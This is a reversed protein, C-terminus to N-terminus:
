SGPSSGPQEVGRRSLSTVVAVGGPRTLRRLGAAAGFGLGMVAMGAVADLLFHNGTAITAIVVLLPYLAGVVRTLRRRATIAVGVGVALAWGAHLSPLAAVPDSFPSSQPSGIDFGLLSRVTDEIGLGALRPPAAPFSVHVVLAAATAVLLADRFFLFRDRSRRYLWVLFLATVVWHAALYFLDLAAVLPPAHLALRQVAGEVDLHALQELAFVDRAHRIAVPWDPQILRRLLEYLEVAAIALLVQASGHRRALVVRVREM